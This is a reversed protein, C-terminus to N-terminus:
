RLYKKEFAYTLSINWNFDKGGVINTQIPENFIASVSLPFNKKALNIISTFYFGDQQDLKLYYFQPSLKMFYKDTLKINSFSSNVTVFHTNKTTGNDLGHSYLYYMGVSINNTLLYNPSIETALYRRGTIVDNTIGNTLISETRFVISPHAGISILFKDTKLLKYRWWFIFSWPKGDLGFRLQPEFSLKRKGLTLDFIAAPKGLSFTPILSIGNNTVTAASKFNLIHKTSDNKQSFSVYTFPLLAIIIIAKKLCTKSKLFNM